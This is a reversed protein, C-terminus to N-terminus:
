GRGPTFSTLEYISYENRVTAADLADTKERYEGDRVERVVAKVQPSYWVQNRLTTRTRWFEEDDLQVIRYVQISDFTGAPVTVSIAGQV